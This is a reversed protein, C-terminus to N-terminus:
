VKLDKLAFAEMYTKNDCDCKFVILSSKFVSVKINQKCDDCRICLEREAM